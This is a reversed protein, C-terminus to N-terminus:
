NQALSALHTGPFSITYWPPRQPITKM